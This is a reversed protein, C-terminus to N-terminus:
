GTTLANLRNMLPDGGSVDTIDSMSNGTLLFSRDRILSFRWTAFVEHWVMAQAKRGSCAEWVAITEAGDGVGNLRPIGLGEATFWDYFIWWGLDTEAGGLSVTEWDIVAQCRDGRFLMNGPRADGWALGTTREAPIHQALWERASDQAPHRPAGSWARYRDWLAIEQDLGTKGLEPRSLFSFHAPDAAHIHAMAQIASLWQERRVAPEIESWLGESHHLSAPLAGGVREMIFFPAGLVADDPEFLIPAPVPAVSWQTLADLTRFQREISPYQYIRHANPELKLVWHEHREVGGERIIPDLLLTESSAGVAAANIRPLDVSQAQPIRTCLWALVRRRVSDIDMLHM